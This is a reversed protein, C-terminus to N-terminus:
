PSAPGAGPVEIVLRTGADPSSRVSLRGGILRVRETMGTIGLARGDGAAQRRADDFGVGDDEVVLGVGDPSFTLDVRVCRADAHREVNTLAEQAIRFLALEVPAGLRRATGHVAFASDFGQRQTAETVLLNVSAVLGLDDLVSPRLGRAITRLEAVTDEATSRLVALTAGAGPRPAPGGELDDILRCLHILSQLPGDHLEQALHRREEEQGQVVRGAFAEMLDRRRTEATVDEFVVQMRREPGAPGVLTASPRYLVPRGDVELALPAVPQDPEADAATEAGALLRGIVRGAADPGIVDVLRRGDSRGPPFAHDAAENREVVVGDADVLLIPSRNASFLDRYLAEARLHAEQAAAARRSVSREGSVRQGILLALSCLLAVQLVEAWAAGAEHQGVATVVRPVSLLTVWAATAAAGSLGYNLAAVVLPVVYLAVTSFELAVSSADLHFAVTVALRGLALALVAVQLLWFSSSAWPGPEPGGTM